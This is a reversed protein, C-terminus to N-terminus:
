LVSEGNLDTTLVLSMMDFFPRIARYSRDVENLFTDSLVEGDTFNRVFLFQKHRILGIDPHERDFGKPATKVAEGKLNGWVEVLTKDGIAEKFESADMELEKRIRLLDEKNPNWFGTALFSGGPQIHIYYGGRLHPGLRPFSAAFHTKYPRKDKSFRVDRYIRFMKPKGVEDQQELQEGVSEFFAKTEAQQAKFESKNAEFWERDNNNKLHELFALAKKSIVTNQVMFRSFTIKSSFNASYLLRRYPNI